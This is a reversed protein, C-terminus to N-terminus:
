WDVGQRQATAGMNTMGMLALAADEGADILFANSLMRGLINGKGYTHLVGGAVGKIAASTLTGNGIVPATTKEELIKLVGTGVLEFIGTVEVKPKLIEEAM